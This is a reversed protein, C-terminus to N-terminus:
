AGGMPVAPPFVRMSEMCTTPTERYPDRRSLPYGCKYLVYACLESCFWKDPNHMKKRRIFGFVGLWDYGDGVLSGACEHAELVQEQTLPVMMEDFVFEDASNPAHRVVGKGQLAEIEEVRGNGMDFVLSVHSYSGFTFRKIFDSGFGQGNYGRLYCKM